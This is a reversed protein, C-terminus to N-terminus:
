NLDKKTVDQFKPNSETASCRNGQLVAEFLFLEVVLSVEFAVQSLEKLTLGCREVLASNMGQISLPSMYHFVNTRVNKVLSGHNFRFTMVSLAGFRLGLIAEKGLAEGLVGSLLIDKTVDDDLNLVGFVVSATEDQGRSRGDEFMHEEDLHRSKPTLQNRQWVDRLFPELHDPIEDVVISVPGLVFVDSQSDEPVRMTKLDVGKM